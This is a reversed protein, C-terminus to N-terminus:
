VGSLQIQRDPSVTEESRRVIESLSVAFAIIIWGFEVGLAPYVTVCYLFGTYSSLIGVGLARISSSGRRLVYFIDAFISFVLTVFVFFGIIGNEALTELFGNHNPKRNFYSAMSPAERLYRYYETYYNGTGIGLVPHDRFMAISMLGWGIRWEISKGGSRKSSDLREMVPALNAFEMIVLLLIFSAFFIVSMIWKYRINIFFFFIVSSIIIGLWGARSGTAIINILYLIFLGSWCIKKIKSRNVYIMYLLLGSLIILFAAHLDPDGSFSQIRWSGEGTILLGSRRYVNPLISSGTIMEYIGGASALFSGILLILSARQITNVTCLINFLLFYLTILSFRQVIVIISAELCRAPLVGLLLVWCHVLLLVNTRNQFLSQFPKADKQLSFRLFWVALTFLIFVKGVTLVQSKESLPGTLKALHQFTLVFLTTYVLYLEISIPGSKSFYTEPKM